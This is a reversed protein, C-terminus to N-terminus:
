LFNNSMVKPVVRTCAHLQVNVTVCKKNCLNYMPITNKFYVFGGMHCVVLFSLQFYVKM